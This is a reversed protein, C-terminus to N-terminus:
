RVCRVSGKKAVGAPTDSNALSVVWGHDPYGPYPASSWYTGKDEGFAEACAPLAACRLFLGAEDTVLSTLEERTPLRYGAPCSLNAKARSVEATKGVCKAGDWRKGVPCRLWAVRSGRPQVEAAACSGGVAEMGAPCKVEGVCRRATTGWDQGPWCCHGATLVQGPEPCGEQCTSGVPKTGDPCQPSGVCAQQLAGWDQGPWCCRGGVDVQGAKCDANSPTPAPAPETGRTGTPTPVPAPTGAKAPSPMRLGDRVVQESVRAVEDVLEGLDKARANGTALLAGAAADFLKLTVIYSSGMIVVTGTIGYDAGMNQLTDIECEGEDCDQKGMQRMITVMSERTMVTYQDRQLAKLAGARAQDSLVQIEEVPIKKSGTFELVAFRKVSQGSAAPTWGVLVTTALLWRLM